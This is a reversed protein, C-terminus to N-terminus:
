EPYFQSCTLEEVTHYIWGTIHYCITPIWTTQLAEPEILELRITGVRTKLYFINWSSTRLTFLRAFSNSWCMVRICVNFLWSIDRESFSSPSSVPNSSFTWFLSALFHLIQQVLGMDMTNTLQPWVTHTSQASRALDPLARHKVHLAGTSSM